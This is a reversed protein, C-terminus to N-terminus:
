NLFIQTGFVIFLTGAVRNMYKKNRLYAKQILKRSFLLALATHWWIVNLFIVMVAAGRIWQPVEPHLITTFLSGFFLVSKPNSLNTILGFIFSRFYNSTKIKDDVTKMQKEKNLWFKVGIFIIYAGGFLKLIKYMWDYKEILFDVGFAAASAWILAGVAIGLATAIGKSKSTRISTQTVAVFNIGPISM